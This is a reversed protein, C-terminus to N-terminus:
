ITHNTLPLALEGVRIIGSGARGSVVPLPPIELRGMILSPALVGVEHEQAPEDPGRDIPDARRHQGPSIYSGSEQTSCRTLPLNLEKGVVPPLTTPSPM